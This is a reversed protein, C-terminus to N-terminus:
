HFSLYFLNMSPCFISKVRDNCIESDIRTIRAAGNGSHGIEKWEDPSKSTSNGDLITANTFVIGSYHKPSNTHIGNKNVSNCGEFGSVYSSGSSSVSVYENNQNVSESKDGFGGYFGGGAGSGPTDAHSKGNAGIGLSNGATQTTTSPSFKLNNYGSTIFGTLNGGPAGYCGSVAGSGGAAVMIRSALSAVDSDNM